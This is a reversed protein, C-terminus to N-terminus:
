IIVVFIILRLFMVGAFSCDLDFRYERTVLQGRTHGNFLSTANNSQLKSGIGVIETVATANVFKMFCLM